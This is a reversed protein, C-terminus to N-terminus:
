LCLVNTAAGDCGVRELPVSYLQAVTGSLPITAKDNHADSFDDIHRQCSLEDQM